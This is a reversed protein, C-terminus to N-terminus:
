LDASLQLFKRLQGSVLLNLYANDALVAVNHEHLRARRVVRKKYITNPIEM